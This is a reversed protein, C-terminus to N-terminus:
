VGLLMQQISSPGQSLDHILQFFLQLPLPERCQTLAAGFRSKQCPGPFM